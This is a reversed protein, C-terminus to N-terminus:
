CEAACAHRFRGSRSRRCRGCGRLLIQSAVANRVGLLDLVQGVPVQFLDAVLDACHRDLTVQAALGRHVDLTQHVDTAVATEAMAAAQRHTALTRAGVGAGALTRALGSRLFFYDPFLFVHCFCGGIVGCLTHALLDALVNRVANRVHV